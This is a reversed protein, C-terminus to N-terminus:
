WSWIPGSIPLYKQEYLGTIVIPSYKLFFLTTLMLIFDTDKYFYSKLCGGKALVM